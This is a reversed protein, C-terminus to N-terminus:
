CTTRTRRQRRRWRRRRQIVRRMIRCSTLPPAAGRRGRLRGLGRGRGRAGTVTPLDVIVGPLNCNKREGITATSTCRARVTGAAEDCSLVVLSLSGDAILITGGPAVDRALGKYSIAIVGADGETAYDTTLTVDLGAKYTM